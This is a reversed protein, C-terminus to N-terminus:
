LGIDGYEVRATGIVGFKLPRAIKMSHRALHKAVIDAFDDLCHRDFAVLDIQPRFNLLFEYDHFDLDDAEVLTVRLGLVEGYVYRGGPSNESYRTEKITVNLIAFAHKSFAEFDQADKTQIFLNGLM